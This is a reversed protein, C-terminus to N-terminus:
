VGNDATKAEATTKGEDTENNKEKVTEHTISDYKHPNKTIDASFADIWTIKKCIGTRVENIIYSKASLMQPIASALGMLAQFATWALNAWSFDSLEKVSFLGCLLAPLAKLALDVISHRGLFEKESEPLAYKDEKAKDSSTISMADLESLKLNVAKKYANLRAREARRDFRNKWGWKMKKVDVTYLKIVDGNDDFYDSYKMAVRGLIKKRQQEYNEINKQECWAPLCDMNSEIGKVKKGHLTSTEQYSTHNRGNALGQARFLSTLIIQFIYFVIGTGVIEEITRGTRNIELISLAIYAATFLTAIIYGICNKLFKKFWEVM